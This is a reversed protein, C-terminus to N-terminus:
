RRMLLVAGVVVAGGILIVTLMQGNQIAATSVPQQAANHQAEFAQAQQILGLELEKFEFDIYRDLVGTAKNFLNDLFDM